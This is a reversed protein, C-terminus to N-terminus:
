PEKVELVQGTQVDELIIEKGSAPWTVIVSDVSSIEKGFGFHAIRESQGLFHSMSGIERLQKKDTSNVVVKAGLGDANTGHGGSVKVRLWSGAKNAGENRYFQPAQGASLILLDLDGDKDYDFVAVSRGRLEHRINIRRTVNAFSDGSGPNNWLVTQDNDMSKAYRYGNEDNINLGGSTMLIDLDGDNDYDFMVSGWSWTEEEVHNRVGASSSINKFVRNGQNIYLGHGDRGNNILGPDYIASVFWDMDGDNDIDGATSGMSHTEKAVGSEATGDIFYGQNNWFMRSSGFDGAILLDQWGDNDMDTFSAAFSMQFTSYDILPNENISDELSPLIHRFVYRDNKFGVSETVDLFQGPADPGRNQLLRAHAAKIDPRWETVFIDAWGDRNFDGVSVSFGFHNYESTISANRKVAEETFHGDNNVFLYYQGEGITTVYLDLDNDNDIDVWTAGNGTIVVGNLVDQIGSDATVDYFGGNGNNKYLIGLSDAQTFFLDEYGDNDFDGVAVGGGMITTMQVIDGLKPNSCQDYNKSLTCEYIVDPLQHIHNIGSKQTINSFSVDVPGERDIVDSINLMNDHASTTDEIAQNKGISFFLFFIIIIIILLPGAIKLIKDLVM